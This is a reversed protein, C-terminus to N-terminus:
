QEAGFGRHNGPVSLSTGRSECFRRAASSWEKHQKDRRRSPRFAHRHALLAATRASIREPLALVIVRAVLDFFSMTCRRGCGDGNSSRLFWLFPANGLSYYCKEDNESGRGPRAGRHAHWRPDGMPALARGGCARCLRQRASRPPARGAFAARFHPTGQPATPGVCLNTLFCISVSRRVHPSSTLAVSQSSARM